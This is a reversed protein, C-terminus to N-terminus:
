NVASKVTRGLPSVNSVLEPVIRDRGVPSSDAWWLTALSPLRKTAHGVGLLGYARSRVRPTHTARDWRTPCPWHSKPWAFATIPPTSCVTRKSLALRTDDAM